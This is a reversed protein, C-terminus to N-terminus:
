RVWQLLNLFTLSSYWRDLTLECPCQLNQDSPGQGVILSIQAGDQLGSNIVERTAPGQCTSPLLCLRNAM